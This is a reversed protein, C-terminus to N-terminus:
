QSAQVCEKLDVCGYVAGRGGVSPALSAFYSVRGCLRKEAESWAGVAIKEWSKEREERRQIKEMAMKVGSFCSGAITFQKVKRM